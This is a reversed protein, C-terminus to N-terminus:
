TLLSTLVAARLPRIGARVDVFVTQTWTNNKHCTVVVDASAVLAAALARDGGAALRAKKAVWERIFEATEAERTAAPQRRDGQQQAADGECSPCFSGPSLATCAAAEKKWKRRLRLYEAWEVEGSASLAPEASAPLPRLGFAAM